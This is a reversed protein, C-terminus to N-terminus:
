RRRRRRGSSGGLHVYIVPMVLLLLLHMSPPYKLFPSQLEPWGSRCSTCSIEVLGATLKFCAGAAGEVVCEWLMGVVFLVFFPLKFM